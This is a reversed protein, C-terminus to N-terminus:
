ESFLKKHCFSVKSSMWVTSCLSCMVESPANFKSPLREGTWEFDKFCVHCETLEENEFDTESLLDYPGILGFGEMFIEELWSRSANKSRIEQSYLIELKKVKSTENNLKQELEKLQNEQLKKDKMAKKFEAFVM